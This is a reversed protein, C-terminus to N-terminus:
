SEEEGVKCTIIIKVGTLKVGAMQMNALFVYPWLFCGCILELGKM